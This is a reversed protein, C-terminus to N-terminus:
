VNRNDSKTVLTKCHLNPKASSYIGLIVLL